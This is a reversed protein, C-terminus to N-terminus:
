KVVELLAFIEPHAESLQKMKSRWALTEAGKVEVWAHTGDRKFVLFDVVYRVGGQLRVPVQEVWYAVDGNTANKRNWLDAAYAAERKSSYHGVRKARYKNTPVNTFPKAM